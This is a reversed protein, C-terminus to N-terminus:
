KYEGNMVCYSYKTDNKMKELRDTRLDELYNWHKSLTFIFFMLSFISFFHKEMMRIKKYIRLLYGYM